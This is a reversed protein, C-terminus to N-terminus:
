KRGVLPGPFDPGLLLDNDHSLGRVLELFLYDVMTPSDSLFDHQFQERARDIPERLASYLDGRDLGRRVSEGHQLRIEAVRLRAFRQARLHLAQNEPTLETWTFGQSKEGSDIATPTGSAQAGAINVLQAPPGSAPRTLAELQIAIMGAALELPAANTEQGAFVIAEVQGHVTIPFLHVREVTEASLRAALVSSIESASGMSVVPDRSEILTRFAAGENPNLEIPLAGLGAAMVAGAFGDRFRLIAWREAYPGVLEASVALAEEPTETARLRRLNQNTLEAFRDRAAEEANGRARDFEVTWATNVRELLEEFDERASAKWAPGIATM